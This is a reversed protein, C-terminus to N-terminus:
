DCKIAPPSKLILCLVTIGMQFVHAHGPDKLKFNVCNDLKQLKM